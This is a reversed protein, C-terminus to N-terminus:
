DATALHPDPSAPPTTSGSEPEGAPESGSGSGSGPDTAPGPRGAAARPPASGLRSALWVADAVDEATVDLGARRLRGILEELPAGQM